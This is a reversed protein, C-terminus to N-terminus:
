GVWDPGFEAAKTKFLTSFHRKMKPMKADAIHAFSYFIIIPKNRQHRKLLKTLVQVDTTTTATALCRGVSRGVALLRM